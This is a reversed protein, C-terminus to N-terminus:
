ICVRREHQLRRDNNKKELLLRCVLHGRLQLESTHEESRAAIARTHPIIKLLWYPIRLWNRPIKPMGATYQVDVSHTARIAIPITPIQDESPNLMMMRPAPSRLMGASIYSAARMSPAEFQRCSSDMVTGSSLGLMKKRVTSLTMRPISSNSRIKMM